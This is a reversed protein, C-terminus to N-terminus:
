EYKYKGLMGEESEPKQPSTASLIAKEPELYFRVGGLGRALLNYIWGLIATIVAGIVAYFIALFFIMFIGLIGSFMGGLSQFEGGMQSLFGLMASLMLAYFIGFMLGLIGFLIFAIKVCSWVDIRKIEYIM